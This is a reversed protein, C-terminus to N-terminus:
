LADTMGGAYRASPAPPSPPPGQSMDHVFSRLTRMLGSIRRYQALQDGPAPFPKESATADTKRRPIRYKGNIEIQMVPITGRFHQMIFRTVTGERRGPFHNVSVTDAPPFEAFWLRKFQEVTSGACSRVEDHTAGGCGLDIAFERTSV